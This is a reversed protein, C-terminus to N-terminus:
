RQKVSFSFCRLVFYIESQIRYTLITTSTFIYLVHCVIPDFSILNVCTSLISRCTMSPASDTEEAFMRLDHQDFLLCIEQDISLEDRCEEEERQNQKELQKYSQEVVFEFLYLQLVLESYKCHVSREDHSHVETDM